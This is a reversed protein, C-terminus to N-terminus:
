ENRGTRKSTLDPYLSLVNVVYIIVTLFVLPLHEILRGM